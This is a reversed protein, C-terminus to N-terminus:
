SGESDNTAQTVINVTATTGGEYTIVAEVVEADTLDDISVGDPDVGRELATVRDEHDELTSILRVKEIKGRNQIWTKLGM